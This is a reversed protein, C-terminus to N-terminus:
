RLKRKKHRSRKNHSKRKKRSKKGQAQLKSLSKALAERPSLREEEDSEYDSMSSERLDLDKGTVLKYIFDRQENNFTFGTKNYYTQLEQLTVNYLEQIKFVQKINKITENDISKSKIIKNLLVDLIKKHDDSIKIHTPLDLNELMTEEQSLMEEYKSFNSMFNAKIRSKINSNNFYRRIVFVYKVIGHLQERKLKKFEIIHDRKQKRLEITEIRELKKLDRKEKRLSAAQERAIKTKSREEIGKGYRKTYKKTYKKNKKIKQKTKKVM